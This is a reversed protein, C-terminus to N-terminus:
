AREYGERTGLVLGAPWSSIRQVAQQWETAILQRALAPIEEANVYFYDSRQGPTGDKKIIPGQIKLGLHGTHAWELDISAVISTVLIVREEVVRVRNKYTVHEDTFRFADDKLDLVVRLNGVTTHSIKM